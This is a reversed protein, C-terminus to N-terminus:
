RRSRCSEIRRTPLWFGISYCCSRPRMNPDHRRHFDSADGRLLREACFLPPRIPAYHGIVPAGPQRWLRAEWLRRLARRGKPAYPRLRSKGPQVWCLQVRCFGVRSRRSLSEGSLTREVEKIRAIPVRAGLVPFGFKRGARTEPASRKTAPRATRSRKRGDM